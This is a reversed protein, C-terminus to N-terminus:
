LAAETSICPLHAGLWMLLLLFMGGYHVCCAHGGELGQGRHLIHMGLETLEMYVYVRVCVIPAQAKCMPHTHVPTVSLHLVATVLGGSSLLAWATCYSPLGTQLFLLKLLWQFKQDSM